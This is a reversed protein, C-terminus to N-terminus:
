LSSDKLRIFPSLDKGLLDYSNMIHSYVEEDNLVQSFDIQKLSM